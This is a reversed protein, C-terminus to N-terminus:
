CVYRSGKRNGNTRRQKGGHGDFVGFLSTSKEFNVSTIHADEQLLDSSLPIVMNLRWGQMSCLGYKLYGNEGNEPNKDTNPTELYVLSAGM